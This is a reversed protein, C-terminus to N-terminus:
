IRWIFRAFERQWSSFVLFTIHFICILSTMFIPIAKPSSIPILIPIFLFLTM